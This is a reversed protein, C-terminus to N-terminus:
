CISVIYCLLLENSIDLMKIFSTIGTNLRWLLLVSALLVIYLTLRSLRFRSSSVVYFLLMCFCELVHLAVCVRVCVVALM